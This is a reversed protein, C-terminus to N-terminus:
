LDLKSGTGRKRAMWLLRVLSRSLREALARPRRYHLEYVASESARELLYDDSTLLRDVLKLALAQSGFWHEGTAVKAIDVAPRNQSVFRKFLTHTEEIEERFKARGADTNEGFVTLTRKYEGATHLEFDIDHKRLLRHVNPLQAVVGISGVVAFPAALIQDAICAMMYGGSAAVKDVTVTLKIRRERVRLLQSAALGYAHVLGGGSELRVVVEDGARAVQLLSSIEERLADVASAQVDGDFDLVFVRPKEPQGNKLARAERRQEKKRQTELKKRASDDLLEDNLTDALEHLRGNVHHIELHGRESGRRARAAGAVAALVAILAGALTLTKALFLGYEHLFAM